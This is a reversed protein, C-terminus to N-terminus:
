FEPAMAQFKNDLKSFLQINMRAYLLAILYFHNLEIVPKSSFTRSIIIVKKDREIYISLLPLFSLCFSIVQVNNYDLNRDMM